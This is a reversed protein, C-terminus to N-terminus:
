GQSSPQAQPSRADAAVRPQMCDALQSSDKARRHGQPGRQAARADNWAARGLGGSQPDPKTTVRSSVRQCTARHILRRGRFSPTPSTRTDAGEAWPPKLARGKRTRQGKRRSSVAGPDEKRHSFARFPRPRPSRARTQASRGREGRRGGASSEGVASARGNLGKVARCGDFPPGSGRGERGDEWCARAGVQGQTPRREAGEDGEDDVEGERRHAFAPRAHPRQRKERSSKRRWGGHRGDRGREGAVESALAAAGASRSWPGSEGREIGGGGVARRGGGGAMDIDGEDEPDVATGDLPVDGLVRRRRSSGFLGREVPSAAALLANPRGEAPGCSGSGVDCTAMGVEDVLRDRAPVLPWWLWDSLGNVNVTLLKSSSECGASALLGGSSTGSAEDDDHEDLEDTLPRVVAKECTSTSALRRRDVEDGLTALPTKWGGGCGPM